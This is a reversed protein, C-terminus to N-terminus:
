APRCAPATRPAATHLCARSWGMHPRHGTALRDRRGRGAAPRATAARRCGAGGLEAWCARWAARVQLMGPEWGLIRAVKRFLEIEYGTYADPDRDKCYVVAGTAPIPTRHLRQRRPCCRRRRCCAARPPGTGSGARPARRPRLRPPPRRAFWAAPESPTFESTCVKIPGTGNWNPISGAPWVRAPEPAPAGVPAPLDSAPAPAPAAAAAAQQAGAPLVAAGLLAVILAALAMSSAMALLPCM